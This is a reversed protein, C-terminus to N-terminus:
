DYSELISKNKKLTIYPLHEIKKRRLFKICNQNLIVYIHNEEKRYVKLLEPTRFNWLSPRIIIRWNCFFNNHLIQLLKENKKRREEKM